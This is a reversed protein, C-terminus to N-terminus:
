ATSLIPSLADTCAAVVEHFPAGLDIGVLRLRVSARSRPAWGFDAIEDSVRLPPGSRDWIPYVIIGKSARVQEHTAYAITQYVHDEPVITLVMEDDTDALSRYKAEVVIRQDGSKILGDLIIERKGFETSYTLDGRRGEFAQGFSAKMLASVYSQFLTPMHLSFAAFPIHEGSEMVITENQLLVSCLKHVGRFHLNSRSYRISALERVSVRLPRVGALAERCKRLSHVLEPSSGLEFVSVLRRAVDVSHALVQNEIVDRSLELYRSPMFQGRGRPLNQLAYDAILPRGRVGSPSNNEVFRYNRYHEKKLFHQVQRVFFDLFVASVQAAGSAIESDPGGIEPLEGSTRDIMRFVDAADVKPTVEIVVWRGESSM